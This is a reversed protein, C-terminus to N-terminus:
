YVNLYKHRLHFIYLLYELNFRSRNLILTFHFTHPPLTTPPGDLSPVEGQHALYNRPQRSPSNHTDYVVAPISYQSAVPIPKTILPHHQSAAQTSYSAPYRLPPSMGIRSVQAGIPQDDIDPYVLVDNGADAHVFSLMVARGSRSLPCWLVRPYCISVFVVIYEITFLRHRRRIM